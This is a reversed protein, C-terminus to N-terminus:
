SRGVSRRSLCFLFLGSLFIGMLAESAAVLRFAGQPALDGYGVTTFTIASFYLSSVFSRDKIAGFWEYVLAYSLIVLLANGLVRMPKEGYGVIFRLFFSRAWELFAITRIATYRWSYRKPSVGPMRSVLEELREPDNFMAPVIEDAWLKASSLRQALVRYKMVRSRYAAWSADDFMGQSSFYVALSRYAGECQQPHQELMQYYPFWGWRLGKFNDKSLGVVDGFKNDRFKANYLRTGVFWIGNLNCSSLYANELNAYGFNAGQLDCYSLTAKNLNARLFVGNRLNCGSGLFSGGLPASVLYAKELSRGASVEAEIATKLTVGPGFHSEIAAAEYKEANEFHWYCLEGAFLKRGCIPAPPPSLRTLLLPVQCVRVSEESVGIAEKVIKVLVL